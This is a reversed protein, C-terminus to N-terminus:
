KHKVLRAAKKRVPGTKASKRAVRASKAVKKKTAATKVAKKTTAPGSRPRREARTAPKHALAFRLTDGVAHYSWIETVSVDHAACLRRAVDVAGAPVYLYFPARVRGMNAWQAMAELHNVSEGTEVEVVGELKRGSQSNLVLDPCVTTGAVRVPTTEELGLNVAVDFRRRWRALLAQVVRDHELQERVPRMLIPSM